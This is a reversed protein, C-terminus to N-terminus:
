GRDGGSRTAQSLSAAPVAQAWPLAVRPGADIARLLRTASERLKLPLMALLEAETTDAIAAATRSVVPAAAPKVHRTTNAPAAPARAAPSGDPAYGATWCPKGGQQIMASLALAKVRALTAAPDSLM